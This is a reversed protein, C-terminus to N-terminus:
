RPTDPSHCKIKRRQNICAPMGMTHHGHPINAGDIRAASLDSPQHEKSKEAGPQAESGFTDEDQGAREGGAEHILRHGKRASTLNFMADHTSSSPYSRLRRPPPLRRQTRDQQQSCWNVEESIRGSPHLSGPRCPSEHLCRSSNCLVKSWGRRGPRRSAQKSCDSGRKKM